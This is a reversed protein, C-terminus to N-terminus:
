STVKIYKIGCEDYCRKWGNPRKSKYKKNLRDDEERTIWCLCSQEKLANEIDKISDLTLICDKIEKVPTAHELVLAPKDNDTGCFDRDDYKLDLISNIKNKHKGTIKKEQIKEDVKEKASESYFEVPFSDSYERILLHISRKLRKELHDNKQTKLPNLLEKIALAYTTIFQEKDM